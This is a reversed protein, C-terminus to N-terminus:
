GAAIDYVEAISARTGEIRTSSIAERILYPRILLDPNPLLRGVGDLRGLSSESDGLLRVTRSPLDITRPIPCPFYAVYGHRGGTRRAEGFPTSAYRSSDM